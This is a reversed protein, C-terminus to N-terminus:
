YTCRTGMRHLDFISRQDIASDPDIAIDYTRSRRSIAADGYRLIQTFSPCHLILSEIQSIHSKCHSQLASVADYQDAKVEAYYYNLTGRAMVMHNAIFIQSAGTALQEVIM